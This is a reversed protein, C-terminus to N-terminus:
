AGSVVLAKNYEAVNSELQAVQRNMRAIEADLDRKSQPPGTFKASAQTYQDRTTKAQALTANMSAINQEERQRAAHAQEASVRKAAVDGRLAALRAKGEALVVGSSDLFAQLKQNDQRVDAAAAQAARIENRGAQEKKATVYGDVGGAVGGIVAGTVVDRRLEKSNAGTLVGVLLGAGAGIAAGTLVGGIVTKNFRDQDERMRQEAASLQVPPPPAPRSTSATPTAGQGGPQMGGPAQCGAIALAVMAAVARTTFRPTEIPMTM